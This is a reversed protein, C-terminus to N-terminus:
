LCVIHTCQFSFNTFQWHKQALFLPERGLRRSPSRSEHITHGQDSSHRTRSVLCFLLTCKFLNMHPYSHQTRCTWCPCVVKSTDTNRLITHVGLNELNSCFKAMYKTCCAARRQSAKHALSRPPYKHHILVPM